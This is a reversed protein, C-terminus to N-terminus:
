RPPVFGSNTFGEGAMLNNLRTAEAIDGNKLANGIADRFSASAFAEYRISTLLDRVETLLAIVQPDAMDDGMQAFKAWLYEATNYPLGPCDKGADPCDRHFLTGPADTYGVYATPVGAWEEYALMVEWLLELQWDPFPQKQGNGYNETGLAETNRHRAHIGQHDPHTGVFIVPQGQQTGTWTHAYRGWQYKYTEAYWDFIRRTVVGIDPESTEPSWTHHIVHWRITRTRKQARLWARFGAATFVKGVYLSGNENVFADAETYVRSAM